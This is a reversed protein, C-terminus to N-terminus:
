RKEPAKIQRQRNIEGTDNRPPLFDAVAFDHIVSRVFVNNLGYPLSDARRITRRKLEWTSTAPRRTEGTALFKVVMM